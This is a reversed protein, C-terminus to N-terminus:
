CLWVRMKPILVSAASCPRAPHAKLRPSYVRGGVLKARVADICGVAPACCAYPASDTDGVNERLAQELCFSQYARDPLGDQTPDAQMARGPAKTIRKIHKPPRLPPPRTLRRQWLARM